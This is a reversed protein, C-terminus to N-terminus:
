YLYYLYYFGEVEEHLLLPPTLCRKMREEEPSERVSVINPCRLQHRV